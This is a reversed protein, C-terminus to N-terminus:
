AVVARVRANLARAVRLCCIGGIINVLVLAQMATGLHGAALRDSVLGVILPGMGGVLNALLSFLAFAMGRGVPAVIRSLVATTPGSYATMTVGFVALAAVVIRIDGANLAITAALVNVFAACGVVLMPGGPGSTRDALWGIAITGLIGCLGLASAIIMGATAVDVHHARMLFAVLWGGVAATSTCYLVASIYLLRAHPTALVELASRLVGTRPGATPAPRHRIPERVTLFIILALLLGPLGYLLFVARWGFERAVLGGVFYSAVMGISTGSYFISTVTARRQPPYLDSLISLSAPAGGSEAAGVGIRVAILHWYASSVGCLATLGSWVSLILVLLNRRNLRDVLWGIPLGAIAYSVGYIAGILLGMQTDSLGFEGKILEQTILIASRDLLYLFYVTTLLALVYARYRARPPTAGDAITPEAM